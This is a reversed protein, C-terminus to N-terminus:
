PRALQRFEACEDLFRRVAVHHDGQADALFKDEWAGSSLGHRVRLWALFEGLGPNQAGCLFLHVGIGDVFSAFRRVDDHGVFVLLSGTRREYERLFMLADLTSVHSGKWEEPAKVESM